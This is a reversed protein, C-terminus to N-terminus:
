ESPLYVARAPPPSKSIDIGAGERSSSASPEPEIEHQVTKEVTVQLQEAHTPNSICPPLHASPLPSM